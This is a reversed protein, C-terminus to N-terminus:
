LGEKFVEKEITSILWENWFERDVKTPYDSKESLKNVEAVLYELYEEVEQRDLIGLKVQKIYDSHYLPFEIKGVEFIQYVEMAARIAHSYAKWDIGGAKEAQKAREGYGNVFDELINKVYELTVTEQFKKGCVQYQRPDYSNHFHIHQGTPLKDWFLKLRYPTDMPDQLSMVNRLFEIVTKAATIRSGKLSYKAAQKRAYGVFAKMDKTFFKERHKALDFWVRKVIIINDANTHLMDLAETEGACALDIFNFISHIQCDVDGVTNKKGKNTKPTSYSRPVQHLLLQRKTPLYIGKYDTDSYPTATGYLHSGFKTFLIVQEQKLGMKEIAEDIEMDFNDM